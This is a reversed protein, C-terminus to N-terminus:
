SGGGSSPMRAPAPTPEGRRQLEETVTRLEPALARRGEMRDDASIRGEGADADLDRLEQLLRERREHLEDSAVPSSAGSGRSVGIFAAALAAFLALVAFEM